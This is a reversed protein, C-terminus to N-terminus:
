GNRWSPLYKIYEVPTYFKIVRGEATGSIHNTRENNRAPTWGVISGLALVKIDTWHALGPLPPSNIPTHPTHALQTPHLFPQTPQGGFNLRNLQGSWLGKLSSKDDM